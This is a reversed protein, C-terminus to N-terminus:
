ATLRSTAHAALADLVEVQADSVQVDVQVAIDTRTLAFTFFSCCDSERATLDRVTNEAAPDLRWRLRTPALREQERLAATFLEDFEALRLPQQASPLGCAEPVWGQDISM